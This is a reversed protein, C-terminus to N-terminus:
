STNCFVDGGGASTGFLAGGVVTLAAKLSDADYGGEFRYLVRFRRDLASASDVERAGRPMAGPAGIPPQTDDQAQRLAGCAALM